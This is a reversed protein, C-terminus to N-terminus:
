KGTWVPKRKQVFAEVGEKADDTELLAMFRDSSEQFAAPIGAAHDMANSLEKNTEVALPAAACIENALARAEDMLSEAPVVRNILGLEVARNSDFTRGTLLLEMAAKRGAQEIMRQVGGAAAFLGVKVEPLAFVATPVTLALDCAMVIEFGGGMAFGNIAAIVPKSRDFRNTLGAFGSSQPKIEGGENTAKLDNGSCFARDGAGTIIAVRLSPDAEYADFAQHLELHANGSLANLREPRNMTIELIAGNRVVSIETFNDM